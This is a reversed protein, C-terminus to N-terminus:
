KFDSANYVIVPNFVNAKNYETRNCHRKKHKEYLIFLFQHNMIQDQSISIVLFSYMNIVPM